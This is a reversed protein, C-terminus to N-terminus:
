FSYKLMVRGQAGETFLDGLGYRPDYANVGDPTARILANYDYGNALNVRSLDIASSARPVAGGGRNLYNFLHTVTKQDFVNLVTLEIRLRGRGAALTQSLQMNTQILRPARGMDGRGNVFVETQNTTNVYTSVPTGSGDLFTVGAQLGFPFAYAGYAKVVHPRDTALRGTVDLRGHSDWMMEDINWSTRLAGGPNAISREQAQPTLYSGGTTPTRIEDSSALGSYNGFLRSYTYSASAFWRNSLRRGAGIEIADYLRTVPPTAFRPTPGTPAMTAGTGQGPNTIYLVKNGSVITGVDEIVQRLDNHVYHVSVM